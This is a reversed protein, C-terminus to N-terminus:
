IKLGTTPTTTVPMKLSSKGTNLRKKESEEDIEVSAEEVPATPAIIPQAEATSSSKKGM